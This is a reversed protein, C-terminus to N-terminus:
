WLGDFSKVIEIEVLGFGNGSGVMGAQASSPKSSSAKANSCVRGGGSGGARGSGGGSKGM